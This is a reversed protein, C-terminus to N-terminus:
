VQKKEIFTLIKINKGDQINGEVVTIYDNRDERTIEHLFGITHMLEHIITGYKMCPPSLNITQRGGSFVLDSESSM